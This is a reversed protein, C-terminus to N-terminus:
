RGGQLDLKEAIYDSHPQSWERTGSASLHGLHPGHVRDGQGYQNSLSHGYLWRLGM